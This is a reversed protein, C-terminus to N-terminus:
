KGRQVFVWHRGTTGADRRHSYFLEPESATCHNVHHVHGVGAQSLQWENAARVDFQAHGNPQERTVALGLGAERAAHVVEPGVEYKAASIAPGLVAVLDHARGDYRQSLAQM